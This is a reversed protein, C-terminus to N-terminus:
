GAGKTEPCSVEFRPRSPGLRATCDHGQSLSPDGSFAPTGQVAARGVGQLGQGWTEWLLAPAWAQGLGVRLCGRQAGTPVSAESGEQGWVM